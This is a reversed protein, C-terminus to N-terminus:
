SVNVGHGALEAAVKDPDDPTIVPRVRQTSLYVAFAVAKSPRAADL